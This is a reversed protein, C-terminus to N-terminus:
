NPRSLTTNEPGTEEIKMLVASMTAGAMLERQRLMADDPATATYRMKIVWEGVLAVSVMTLYREGDLTIFFHREDYRREGDVTITLGPQRRQADSFRQRIAAEAGDLQERLSTGQPYRTAYLSTTEDAGRMECSVDDGRPASEYLIVRGRTQEDLFFTCVLGSAPHRVTVHEGEVTEFVGQANADDIIHQAIAQPQDQAAAPTAFAFLALVVALARM